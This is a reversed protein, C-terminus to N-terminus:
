GKEESTVPKAKREASPWLAVLTGLILVVSGIWLWNILPNRFVKFTAGESTIELWDVLVIYLDESLTSRVGPISVSQQAAYYYDSAPYVRDLERGDRSIVISAQAVNRGDATDFIDLRDYTFTYGSLQLSEGEAVMGQTTTQFMEIGVIGLGMLAVGIHTIYGGYRRRNHRVLNDFAKWASEHHVRSRLKISKITDMLTAIIAFFVFWFALLALWQTAGLLLAVIPAALAIVAPLWISKGLSRATSAGWITFPVIGILLLLLAFL